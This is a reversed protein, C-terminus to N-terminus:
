SLIQIRQGNTPRVPYHRVPRHYVPGAPKQEFDGANEDAVVHHRFEVEDMDIRGVRNGILPGTNDIFRTRRVHVTAATEDDGLLYLPRGTRRITSDEITAAHHGAITVGYFDSHAGDLDVRVLELEGISAVQKTTSDFM